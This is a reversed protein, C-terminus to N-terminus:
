ENTGLFTVIYEDTIHLRRINRTVNMPSVDGIFISPHPEPRPDLLHAWINTSYGVFIAIFILTKNKTSSGTKAAERSPSGGFCASYVLYIMYVVLIVCMM